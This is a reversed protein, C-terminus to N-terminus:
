IVIITEDYTLLTVTSPQGSGNSVPSKTRSKRLDTRGTDRVIVAM